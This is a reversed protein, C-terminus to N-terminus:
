IDRTRSEAHDFTTATEPDLLADDGDAAMARFAEAWGERARKVPRVDLSGRVSGLDVRDRIGADELLPRPIRARATALEDEALHANRGFEAIREDTYLEVPAVVAPTLVISGGDLRVALVDGRRLGLTRRVGTPLTVTGRGSLQTTTDDMTAVHHTM